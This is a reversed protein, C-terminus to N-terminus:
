RSRKNSKKKKKKGVETKKELRVGCHSPELANLNYQVTHIHIDAHALPLFIFSVSLFFALSHM